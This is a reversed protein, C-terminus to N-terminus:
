PGKAGGTLFEALTPGGSAVSIDELAEEVKDLYGMILKFKEDTM